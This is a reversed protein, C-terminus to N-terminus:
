IEKENLRRYRGQLPVRSFDCYRRHYTLWLRLQNVEFLFRGRRSHFRKMFAGALYRTM